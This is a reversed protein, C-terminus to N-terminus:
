KERNLYDMWQKVLQAKPGNAKTYRDAYGRALKVDEARNHVLGGAAHIEYIWEVGLAWAEADAHDAAGSAIYRELTRVAERGKGFSAYVYALPRTFRVDTPWLGAAEELM